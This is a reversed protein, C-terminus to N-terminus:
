ITSGVFRSANDNQKQKLVKRGLQRNNNFIRTKNMALAAKRSIERRMYAIPGVLM